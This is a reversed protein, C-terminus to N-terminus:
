ISDLDIDLKEIKNLELKYEPFEAGAILVLVKIVNKPM